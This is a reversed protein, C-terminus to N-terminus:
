QVAKELESRVYQECDEMAEAITAFERVGFTNALDIGDGGAWWYYGARGHYRAHIPHVHAVPVGSAKLVRGREGQCIRALGREDPERSWTLRPKRAPKQKADM